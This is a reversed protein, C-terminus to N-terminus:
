RGRDELDSFKWYTDDVHTNILNAAERQALACDELKSIRTEAGGMHAGFDSCTKAIRRIAGQMKRCILQMRCSEARTEEQHEMISQYITERSFGEMNVSTTTYEAAKPDKLCPISSYDWQLDKPVLSVQKVSPSGLCLNKRRKGITSATGEIMGAGSGSSQGKETTTLDSGGGAWLSKWGQCGGEDPDRDSTWSSLDSLSFFKDGVNGDPRSKFTPKPVSQLKALSQHGKQDRNDTCSHTLLVDICPTQALIGKSAVPASRVEIDQGREPISILDETAATPPPTLPCPPLIM